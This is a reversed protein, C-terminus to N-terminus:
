KYGMWDIPTDEWVEGSFVPRLPGDMLRILSAIFSEAFSRIESDGGHYTFATALDQMAHRKLFDEVNLKHNGPKVLLVTFGGNRGSLAEIFSIRMTLRTSENVFHFIPVTRGKPYNALEVKNLKFGREAFESTHERVVSEILANCTQSSASHNGM